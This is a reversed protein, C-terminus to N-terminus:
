TLEAKLQFINLFLLYLLVLTDKSKAKTVLNALYCHQPFVKM